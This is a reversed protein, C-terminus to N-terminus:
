LFRTREEATPVPCEDLRGWIRFRWRAILRYAPDRLPRPVLRAAAALAPWPQPLVHLVALVADSRLLVREDASEFGAVVVISAPTQSSDGLGYRARLAAVAESEFAVFRLRAGRDRRLLWRGARHCLGCHGDFVVLLSGHKEPNGM